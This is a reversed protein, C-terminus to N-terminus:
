LLSPFPHTVENGVGDRNNPEPRIRGKLNYRRQPVEKAGVRM